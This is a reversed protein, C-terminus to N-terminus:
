LWFLRDARDIQLFRHLPHSPLMRVPVQDLLSRSSPAPDNRGGRRLGEGLDLRDADQDVLAHDHDTRAAAADGDDAIRLALQFADLGHDVLVQRRAKERSLELGIGEQHECVNLGDIQVPARRLLLGEALDAGLLQGAHAEGGARHPWLYLCGAIKSRGGAADGSDTTEFIGASDQFSPGPRQYALIWSRSVPRSRRATMALPATTLLRQATANEPQPLWGADRLDQQANLTSPM